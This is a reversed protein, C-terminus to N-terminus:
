SRYRKWNFLYKLPWHIWKRISLHQSLGGFKFSSKNCKEPKADARANRLLQAKDPKNKEWIKCNHLNSTFNLTNQLKLTVSTAVWLAWNWVQNPKMSAGFKICFSTKHVSYFHTVQIAQYNKSAYASIDLGQFRKLSPIFISSAM